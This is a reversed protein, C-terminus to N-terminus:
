EAKLYKEFWNVMETLRRVRHKPKGARSLEHNEGHFLCMRAEVGYYKLATFMQLADAMYCRYDQDSQIFLTPTKARHAWKLPSQMWMNELNNWPDGAVQEIDFTFGIDTTMSLTIWNSISRQSVVAAFRDTQGIIWNAMFGGYSGGMMGLRKEDLQPYRKLVEDTFAMLNDYDVTGYRGILDAFVNGRGDSGM